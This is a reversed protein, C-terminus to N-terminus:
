YNPNARRDLRAQLSRSSKLHLFRQRPNLAQAQGINFQTAVYISWFLTLTAIAGDRTFLVLPESM